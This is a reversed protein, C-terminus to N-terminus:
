ISVNYLCNRGSFFGFFVAILDAIFVITQPGFISKKCLTLLKSEEMMFLVRGSEAPILLGVGGCVQAMRNNGM